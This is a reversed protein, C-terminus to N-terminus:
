EDKRQDMLAWCSNMEREREGHQFKYSYGNKVLQIIRHTQPNWANNLIKNFIPSNAHEETYTSLTCTEFCTIWGM